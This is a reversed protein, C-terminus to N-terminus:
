LWFLVKFPVRFLVFLFLTKKGVLHNKWDGIAGKRLLTTRLGGDNKMAKFGCAEAVAM